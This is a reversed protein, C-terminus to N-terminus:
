GDLLKESELKSYIEEIEDNMNQLESRKNKITEIIKEKSYGIRKLFHISAVIEMWNNDRSKIFDLFELFKKEAAVDGFKMEPTQEFSIGFGDKALEVCYPGYHYWTFEYGLNLGFMYEMIYVFKQLKLRNDFSFMDFNKYNRNILGAVVNPNM